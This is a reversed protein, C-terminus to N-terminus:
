LTATAGSTTGSRVLTSSRRRRPSAHGLRFRDGSQYRTERWKGTLTDRISALALPDDRRTLMPAAQIRHLMPCGDVEVYASLLRM